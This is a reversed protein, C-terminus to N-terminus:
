DDNKVAEKIAEEFEPLVRDVANQLFPNARTRGGNRTAHGHVLLHTLRYEPAKVYWVGKVTGGTTPQFASSIARAYRGNRHGIPATERTLKVLERTSRKTAENVRENVQQSYVTLVESLAGGLDEPRIKSNM